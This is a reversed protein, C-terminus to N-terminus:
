RVEKRGTFAEIADQKSLYSSIVVFGIAIALAFTPDKNAKMIILFLIVIRFIPNHFLNGIYPPLNPKISAAYFFILTVLIAKLYSNDLIDDM